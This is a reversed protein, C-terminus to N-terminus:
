GEMRPRSAIENTVTGSLELLELCWLETLSLGFREQCNGRYIAWKVEKTLTSVRAWGAILAPDWSPLWHSFIWMYIAVNFVSSRGVLLLLCHLKPPALSPRIDELAQYYYSCFYYSFLLTESSWRGVHKYHVKIM